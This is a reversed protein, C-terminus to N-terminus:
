KNKVIIVSIYSWTDRSGTGLQQCFIFFKDAGKLTISCVTLNETM